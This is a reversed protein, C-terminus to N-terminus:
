LGVFSLVPLINAPGRPRRLVGRLLISPDPSAAPGEALAAGRDGRASAADHRLPFKLAAIHMKLTEVGKGELALSLLFDRIERASMEAPSRMHYAAFQKACRLYESRTKPAYNELKLDETMRQCLSGM